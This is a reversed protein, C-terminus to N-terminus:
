GFIGTSSKPSEYLAGLGRCSPIYRHVELRGTAREKSESATCVDRRASCQSLASEHV